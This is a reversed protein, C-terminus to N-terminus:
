AWLGALPPTSTPPGAQCMQAQLAPHSACGASPPAAPTGEGQAHERLAPPVSGGDESGYLVAKGRQWVASSGESGYLVAKRTAASHQVAKSM